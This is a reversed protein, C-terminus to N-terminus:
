VRTVTLDLFHLMYAARVTFTAGTTRRRKGIRLMVATRGASAALALTWVRAPM